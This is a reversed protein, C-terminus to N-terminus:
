GGALTFGIVQANFKKLQRACATLTARTTVVDDIILITKGKIIQAYCLNLKFAEAVNKWRQNEDLESQPLTYKTRILLNLLPIEIKRAVAKALLKAQNFERERLKGAHLPVYSIYDIKYYPFIHQRYFNLLHNTFFPLLGLQAQYKFRHIAERITQRYKFVYYVIIQPKEKLLCQKCIGKVSPLDHLSRGCTLCFPALNFEIKTICEKCLPSQYEGPIRQYCTLCYNPQIINNITKLSVTLLTHM